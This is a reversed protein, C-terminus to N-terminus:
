VVINASTLPHNTTSTPSCSASAVGHAYTDHGVGPSGTDTVSVEIILGALGAPATPPITYWFQANPTLAASNVFACTVTATYHLVEFASGAPMTWTLSLGNSDLATGSISGDSAITGSGNVFYGAGTGTYVIHFSVANGAVTGTVTWTYSPDADYTGTGSFSTSTNSLAVLNTVNMTHSYTSTDPTTFVINHTGSINWVNTGPDAYTFTTYNATGSPASSANFSAYQLPNSLAVDGTAHPTATAHAGLPSAVLAAVTIAAVVATYFISKKM